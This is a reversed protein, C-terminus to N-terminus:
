IMGLLHGSKIWVRAGAVGATTLLQSGPPLRLWSWTAFEETDEVFSGDLVFVEIGGPADISVSAGPAWNEIRVYEHADQHLPVIGAGDMSKRVVTRDNPDFQHLKVLITVGPETAPTHSSTPPNRVYTGKPFDGLEDQFVGDLVLYEEGGDHTHASFASGPAFRVISTARAVEDGIRDLMKREVGVAPSPVWDTQDFHVSARQTFDANLRM